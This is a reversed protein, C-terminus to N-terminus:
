PPLFPLEQLLVQETGCKALVGDLSQQQGEYPSPLPGLADNDWDTASGLIFVKRPCTRELRTLM